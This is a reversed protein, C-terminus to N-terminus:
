LTLSIHTHVALQMKNIALVKHRLKTDDFQCLDWKKQMVENEEGKVKLILNKKTECAGYQQLNNM